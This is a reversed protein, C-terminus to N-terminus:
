LIGGKERELEDVYRGFEAAEEDSISDILKRFAVRQEEITLPPESEPEKFMIEFEIDNIKRKVTALDSRIDELGELIKEENSM